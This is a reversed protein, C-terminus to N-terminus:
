SAEGRGLVGNKYQLASIAYLWTLTAVFYDFTIPKNKQDHALKILSWVESVSRPTDLVMLVEAGIGAISREIPIHKAPLIM